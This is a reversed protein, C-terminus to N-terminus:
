INDNEQTAFHCPECQWVIPEQKNHYLLKNVVAYCRHCQNNPPPDPLYAPTGITGEGSVSCQFNTAPHSILTGRDVTGAPLTSSARPRVKIRKAITTFSFERVREPNRESYLEDFLLTCAADNDM